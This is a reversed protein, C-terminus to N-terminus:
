KSLDLYRWALEFIDNAEEDTLYGTAFWKDRLAQWEKKTMMRSLRSEFGHNRGHCPLPSPREGVIAFYGRCADIRSRSPYFGLQMGCRVSTHPSNLTKGLVLRLALSEFGLVLTVPEDTKSVSAKAM